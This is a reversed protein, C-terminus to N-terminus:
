GAGLQERAKQLALRDHQVRESSEMERMLYVRKHSDKCHLEYMALAKEMDDGKYVVCMEVMVVIERMKEEQNLKDVPVVVHDPPLMRRAWELAAKEMQEIYYCGMEQDAVLRVVERAMQKLREDVYSPKDDTM